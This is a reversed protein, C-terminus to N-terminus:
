IVRIKPVRTNDTPHTLIDITGKLGEPDKLLTTIDRYVIGDKPFDPVARILGKLKEIM